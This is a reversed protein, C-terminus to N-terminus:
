FIKNPNPRCKHPHFYLRSYDKERVGVFTLEMEKKDATFHGKFLVASSTLFALFM